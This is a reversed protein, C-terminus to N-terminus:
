LGPPWKEQHTSILEVVVIGAPTGIIAMSYGRSLHHPSLLRSGSFSMALFVACFLELEARVNSKALILTELIGEITGNNWKMVEVKKHRRTPRAKLAIYTKKLEDVFPKRNLDDDASFMVPRGHLDGMTYWTECYPHEIGIRWSTSKPSIRAWGLLICPQTSKVTSMFFNFRGLNRSKFIQKYSKSFVKWPNPIGLLAYPMYAKDKM